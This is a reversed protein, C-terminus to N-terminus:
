KLLIMKRNQRFKGAEISYIYTGASVAQGLDNRADWIVSKHGAEQEAKILSKIKYGLLNYINISVYEPNPLDYRIRTTPNFPNPYNQHLTFVDPILLTEASLLARADIIITRIEASNTTDKGDTAFVMWDCSISQYGATELFNAVTTHSISLFPIPVNTAYLEPTSVLYQGAYLVFGYTITDGDADTSASWTMDIMEDQGISSPTITFETSDLPSSLSFATPIDNVSNVTVMISDHAYEGYGDTGSVYITDTGYRNEIFTLQVDHGDLALQFVDQGSTQVEFEISDGDVDIFYPADESGTLSIMVPESDEEVNIDSIRNVIRIADNVPEVIIMLDWVDSFAEGDSITSPVYLTDSVDPDPIIAYGDTIPEISYGDGDDMVLFLDSVDNDVDSFIFTNKRVHISDEEDTVFYGASSIIPADNVSAVSVLITDAMSENHISTAIVFISDNGFTNEAFSVHMSDGEVLITVLDTGSSHAEFSLFNGDSDFFYPTDVSGLLSMSIQDSDEEVFIDSVPNVIGMQFPYIVDFLFSYATEKIIAFNENPGDELWDGSFTGWYEHPMGEPAHLESEINLSDLRNHILNSGYIVPLLYGNTFPFGADIPVIADAAGHFMILPINDTEDIWNLDFTGGWCAIVANPKRDHNFSNGECDICYLDPDGWWGGYTSGQRDEDELYSLHIGNFAGASSGWIFIKNYDIGYDLFNERLYRVAASADQVGRYAAREASYSSFINYGLRYTLSVALYGMKASSTSLAVMDDAENSGEFWAGSHMFVIVPRNTVTDGVAEYVDMTLDIDSTFWEFAFNFPLDPANAYVVDETKIVESFIEDKYRIQSFAFSFVLIVKISLIFIIKM